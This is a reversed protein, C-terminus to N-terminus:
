LYWALMQVPLVSFFWLFSSSKLWLLQQDLRFESHTDGLYFGLCEVVACDTEQVHYESFCEVTQFMHWQPIVLPFLLLHYTASVPIDPIKLQTFPTCKALHHVAHLLTHKNDSCIVLCTTEHCHSSPNLPFETPSLCWCSRCDAMQYLLFPKTPLCLDAWMCSMTAQTHSTFSQLRFVDTDLHQWHSLILLVNVYMMM